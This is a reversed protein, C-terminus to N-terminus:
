ISALRPAAPPLLSIGFRFSVDLDITIKRATLKIRGNEGNLSEKIEDAM